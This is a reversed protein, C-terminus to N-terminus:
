NEESVPFVQLQYRYQIERGEGSLFKGESPQSTRLTLSEALIRGLEEHTFLPQRPLNITKIGALSPQGTHSSGTKGAVFHDYRLITARIYDSQLKFFLRYQSQLAPEDQAFRPPPFHGDRKQDWIVLSEEEGDVTIFLTVVINHSNLDIDRLDIRVSYDSALQDFLQLHQNLASLQQYTVDIKNDIQHFRILFLILIIPILWGRLAKLNKM